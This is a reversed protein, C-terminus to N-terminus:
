KAGRQDRGDGSSRKTNTSGEDTPLARSRIDETNVVSNRVPVEMAYRNGFRVAGPYGTTDGPELNEVISDAVDDGAFSCGALAAMMPPAALMGLFQWRRPSVSVGSTPPATANVDATDNERM